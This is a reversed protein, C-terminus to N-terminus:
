IIKQLILVSIVISLCIYSNIDRILFIYIDKKVKKKIILNILRLIWFLYVVFFLALSVIGIEYRTVGSSFFDFTGPSAIECIYLFYIGINIFLFSVILLKLFNSNKSSYSIVVNKTVLNNVNIQIMRKFIALMFFLSLFFILFWYTIDIDVISAGYYIRILYFSVLFIIDLLFINKILFNYLYFCILYIILFISFLESNYFLLGLLFFLFLNLQLITKKNFTKFNGKLSNFKDKEKDTFNNTAYCISTIITFIIFGLFLNFLDTFLLKSQSIFLPLFILSNKLNNEFRFYDNRFHRFFNVFNNM